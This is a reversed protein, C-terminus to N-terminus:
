KERRGYYEMLEDFERESMVVPQGGDYHWSKVGDGNLWRLGLVRPKEFSVFIDVRQLPNYHYFVCIKDNRCIIGQRYYTFDPVENPIKIDCIVRNRMRLDGIRYDMGAVSCVFFLQLFIVPITLLYKKVTNREKVFPMGKLIFGKDKILTRQKSDTASIAM